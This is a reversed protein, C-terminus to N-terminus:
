QSGDSKRLQVRCRDYKLILNKYRPLTSNTSNYRKTRLQVTAPFHWEVTYLQRYKRPLPQGESLVFPHCTIQLPFVPKPSAVQSLTWTGPGHTGAQAPVVLNSLTTM